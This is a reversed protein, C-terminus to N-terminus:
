STPNPHLIKLGRGGDGAGRRGKGSVILWAPLGASWADPEAVVSPVAIPSCNKQDSVHVLSGILLGLGTVVTAILYALPMGDSFYGLAGPLTASPFIVVPSSDCHAASLPAASDSSRALVSSAPMEAERRIRERAADDARDASVLFWLEAQLLCYNRYWRRSRPDRLLTELEDVRKDTLEGFCAAASLARLKRSPTWSDSM